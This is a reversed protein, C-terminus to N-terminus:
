RADGLGKYGHMNVENQGCNNTREGGGPEPNVRGFVGMAVLPARRPVLLPQLVDQMNLFAAVRKPVELYLLAEIDRNHEVQTLDAPREPHLENISDFGPWIM